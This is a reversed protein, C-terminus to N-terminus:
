ETENNNMKHIQLRAIVYGATLGIIEAIYKINFNKTFLTIATLIVMIVLIFLFITLMVKGSLPSFTTGMLVAGFMGAGSCLLPLCFDYLKVNNSILRIAIPASYYAAFYLILYSLVTVVITLLLKFIKNM